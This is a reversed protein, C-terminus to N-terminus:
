PVAVFGTQGGVPASPTALRPPDTASYLHSKPSPVTSVISLTGPGFKSKWHGLGVSLWWNWLDPWNVTVSVMRPSKPVYTWVPATLTPEPTSGVAENVGVVDPRVTLTSAEPDVGEGPRWSM